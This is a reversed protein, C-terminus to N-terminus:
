GDQNIDAWLQYFQVRTADTITFRLLFDKHRDIRGFFRFPVRARYNGRKGLSQKGHTVWTYGGDKSYECSIFPETNDQIQGVEMDLEIYPLTWDRPASISPTTIVRRMLTGAEDKANQDLEYIFGDIIDLGYLKNNFLAAAGIRWFEFGESKRQHQLGTSFDYGWTLGETPFTIYYIKHVPGDLFFGFADDTVAFGPFEPTGDGRVRLEFDLDSLKSMSNSDANINLLTNDDSFWSFHEGADALSHVASIGRLKTGGQVPRLPLTTNTITQHMEITRKGMMWCASGKAIAAVMDDPNQEATGFSAPNYADFDAIESLFFENTDRRAFIGRENLVTGSITALFDPDTVQVLGAGNTYSYGQGIGNLIMLQNDGPLSNAMIQGRASGGGVTGLNTVVGFRDCRILDTGTIAYMYGSNIFLNSRGAGATTAFDSLGPCDKVTRYEGEADGEALMNIIGQRARISNYNKEGGGLPIPVLEAM